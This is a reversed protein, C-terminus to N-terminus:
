EHGWGAFRGLALILLKFFLFLFNSTAPKQSAFYWLGVRLYQLHGPRSAPGCAACTTRYVCLELDICPYCLHWLMLSLDVALVWLSKGKWGHYGMRVSWRERVDDSHLSVGIKFASQVCTKPISSCPKSLNQVTIFLCHKGPPFFFFWPKLIFDTSVDSHGEQKAMHQSSFHVDLFWFHAWSSLTLASSGWGLAESLAFTPDQWVVPGQLLALLNGEWLQPKSILAPMVQHEVNLACVLFVPHLIFVVPM